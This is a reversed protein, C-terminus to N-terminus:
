IRIDMHKRVYVGTKSYSGYYKCVVPRVTYYYSTSVGAKEDFYTTGESVPLRKVLTWKSSGAERRMIYYYQAGKVPEWNLRIGWKYQFPEYEKKWQASTIKPASLGPVTIKLGSKIYKGSVNGYTGKVTYYYTGSKSVTNDYFTSASGKVTGICEWGSSTSKRCVRYASAGEAKEWQIRIGRATTEISVLAPAAIFPKVTIGRSDYGGWTTTGDANTRFARVTYCYTTGPKVTTDTYDLTESDYITKMRKWSTGATKRYVRYGSADPVSEWSVSVTNGGLCKATKLTTKPLSSLRDVTYPFRIILKNDEALEATGSIVYGGMMLATQERGTFKGRVDPQNGLTVTLEYTEGQRFITDGKPSNWEANLVQAKDALSDEVRARTSGVTQGAEPFPVDTINIGTHIRDYYFAYDTNPRYVGTGGDELLIDRSAMERGDQFWTCNGYLVENEAGTYHILAPSGRFFSSAIDSCNQGSEICYRFFMQEPEPFAKTFTITGWDPCPGSAAEYFYLTNDKGIYGDGFTCDFGESFCLHYDRNLSLNSATVTNVSSSSTGGFVLTGGDSLQMSRIEHSANDSCIIYKGGLTYLTDIHLEAGMLGCNGATGYFSLRSGEEGIIMLRDDPEESRCAAVSTQSLTLPKNGLNLTSQSQTFYLSVNKLYFSTYIEMTPINVQITSEMIESVGSKPLYKITIGYCAPFNRNMEYVGKSLQIVYSGTSDTMNEMVEDLTSFTGVLTQDNYLTISNEAPKESESLIVPIDDDPAFEDSFEEAAGFVAGADTGTQAPVGFDFDVESESVMDGDSFLVEEAYVSQTCVAIALLGSVVLGTMTKKMKM